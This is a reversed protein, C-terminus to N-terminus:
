PQDRRHARLLQHALAILILSTAGIVLLFVGVDFFLATPLHLGAFLPVDVHAVHSTLFPHAFFWAGVGTAAALALGIGMLRVPRIRLRDEVFRTGGAM